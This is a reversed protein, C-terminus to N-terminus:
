SRRARSRRAMAPTMGRAAHDRSREHHLHKLLLERRGLLPFRVPAYQHAIPKCPQVQPISLMQGSSIRDTQEEEPLRKITTVWIASSSVPAATGGSGLTSKRSRESRREMRV